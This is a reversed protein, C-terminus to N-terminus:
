IEQILILISILLLVVQQVADANYVSKFGSKKFRLDEISKKDSSLPIQRVSNPPTKKNSRLDKVM